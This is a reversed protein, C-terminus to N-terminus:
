PRVDFTFVGPSYDARAFQDREAYRWQAGQPTEWGYDTAYDERIASRAGRWAGVATSHTQGCEIIVNEGTDALTHTVAWVWSEGINRITAVCSAVPRAVLSGNNDYHRWIM